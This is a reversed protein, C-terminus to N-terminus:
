RLAIVSLTLGLPQMIKLLTDLNPTIKCSEIRAVSSQPIGCMEALQRQTIGLENRRDIMAAVIQAVNEAETVDEYAAPDIEKVHKKYDNWTKM